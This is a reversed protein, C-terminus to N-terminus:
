DRPFCHLLEVAQQREGAREGDCQGCGRLIGAVALRDEFLAGGAVRDLRPLIADSWGQVAHKAAFDGADVIENVRRCEAARREGPRGFDDVAKEGIGLASLETAVLHREGAQGFRLIAGVQDSIKDIHRLLGREAGQVITAVLIDGRADLERQSHLRGEFFAASSGLCLWGGRQWISLM